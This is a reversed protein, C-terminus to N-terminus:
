DQIVDFYREIARKEGQLSRHRPSEPHVNKLQQSVVREYRRISAENERDLLLDPCGKGEQDGMCHAIAEIGGYPCPRHSVCFGARIHRAGVKGQRAAKDLDAADEARIFNVIAEKRSEGHPSVFQPSSLRRLDRSIEQYMTNLFFIRTESSLALRSHNRGYYLTMARSQHKLLQQLSSEDVMGSSLM